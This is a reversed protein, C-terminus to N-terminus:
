YSRASEYNKLSGCAGQRRAEALESCSGLACAKELEKCMEAKDGRARALAAMALKLNTLLPGEYQSAIEVAKDFDNRALATQNLQWQAMGQFYRAWGSLYRWALANTGEEALSKEIEVLTHAALEQAKQPMKAELAANTKMLSLIAFDNKEKMAETFLPSAFLEVGKEDPLKTALKWLMKLSAALENLREKVSEQEIHGGQWIEEMERLIFRTEDQLVIEVFLKEPTKFIDSALKRPKEDLFVRIERSASIDPTSAAPPYLLAAAALRVEPGSLDLEWLRREVAAPLLPSVKALAQLWASSRCFMYSAPEVLPAPRFCLGFVPEHSAAQACAARFCLICLCTALRLFIIRARLSPLM